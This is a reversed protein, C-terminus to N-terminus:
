PQNVNIDTAAPLATNDGPCRGLVFILSEGRATRSISRPDKCEVYGAQGLKAKFYMPIINALLLSIFFSGILLKGGAKEVFRKKGLLNLVDALFIVFLVSLLLLYHTGSDFDIAAQQEELSNLVRISDFILWIFAVLAALGCLWITLRASRSM